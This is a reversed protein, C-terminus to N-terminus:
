RFFRWAKDLLDSAQRKLATVRERLSRPARDISALEHAPSDGDARGLAHAQRLRGDYVLLSRNRMTGIYSPVGAREANSRDRLSLESNAVHTHYIGALRAGRPLVICYNVSSGSRQTVPKSAQFYGNTEIFFGGSEYRDGANLLELLTRRALADLSGHADGFVITPCSRAHAGGAGLQIALAVALTGLRAPSM